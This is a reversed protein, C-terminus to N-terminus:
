TKQPKSERGSRGGNDQRRSRSAVFDQSIAKSRRSTKTKPKKPSWDGSGVFGCRPCQKDVHINEGVAQFQAPPGPLMEFQVLQADGFGLLQVDGGFQRFSAIAGRILETDWGSLLNVQNDSVRLAIKDADSLGYRLTVPFERMGAAIAALRRGHGKLIMDDDADIVIDQDPGYKKLLEALLAIQAPPHTRPNQPFPHIDTLLRVAREIKPWADEVAFPKKRKTM